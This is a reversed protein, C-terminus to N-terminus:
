MFYYTSTGTCDLLRALRHAKDSAMDMNEAIVWITKTSKEGGLVIDGSDLCESLQQFYEGQYKTTEQFIQRNSKRM